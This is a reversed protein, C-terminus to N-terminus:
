EPPSGDDEVPPAAGEPTVNEELPVEEVDYDEAAPLGVSKRCADEYTENAVLLDELTPYSEADDDSLEEMHSKTLMDIDTQSLKNEELKGVVCECYAKPTIKGDEFGPEDTVNPDTTCAELFDATNLKAAPAASASGAGIVLAACAALALFQAPSPAM